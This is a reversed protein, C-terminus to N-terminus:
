LTNEAYKRLSPWQTNGSWHVRWVTNVATIKKKQSFDRFAGMKDGFHGAQGAQEPMQFTAKADM